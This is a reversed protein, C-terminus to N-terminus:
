TTTKRRVAVLKRIRQPSRHRFDPGLAESRPGCRQTLLALDQHKRLPLRDAPQAMAQALHAAVGSHTWTFTNDGDRIMEFPRDWKDDGSVYRHLSMLLTFFGKYFLMGDAAIPDPQVGYPEIGNATWGPVDYDGWHDASDASSLSGPYDSRDPDNGFQTLWDSASWWSTHRAVLEDLIRGYLERWAPTLDSMLALAYSSDILDFRHWSTMPEGTTEDWHPHPRGDKEWNDPTTAKRYLYRLWGLSRDDLAPVICEKLLTRGIM